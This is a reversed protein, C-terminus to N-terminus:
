REILMRKHPYDITVRYAHLFAEGIVADEGEGGRFAPFIQANASEHIDGVSWSVDSIMEVTMQGITTTFTDKSRKVSRLYKHCFIDSLGIKYRGVWGCDVLIRAPHGIVTGHICPVGYNSNPDGKLLEISLIKDREESVHKSVVYTADRLILEQTQYDFTVSTRYFAIGGLIIYPLNATDITHDAARKKDPQVAQTPMNKLEYGGLRLSNLIVEETSDTLGSIDQASSRKGTRKGPLQWKKPWYIFVSGTDLVCSVSKDGIKGAMHVYGADLNFPIRVEHYPCNSHLVFQPGRIVSGHMKKSKRSAQYRKVPPAAQGYDCLWAVGILVSAASLWVLHKPLHMQKERGKESPSGRTHRQLRTETERLCFGENRDTISLLSSFLHRSPLDMSLIM